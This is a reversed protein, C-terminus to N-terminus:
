PCWRHMECAESAPAKLKAKERVGGSLAAPRQLLPQMGRLGPLPKPGTCGLM